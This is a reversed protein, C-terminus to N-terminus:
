KSKEHIIWKKTALNFEWLKSDKKLYRRYRDDLYMNMKASSEVEANVDSAEFIEEEKVQNGFVPCKLSFSKDRSDFPFSRCVLPRKEYIQCLNSEGLYPCNKVNLQYLIIKEPNRNGVALDPSVTEPSFLNREKPTLALGKMFRDEYYYDFLNKCCTGCQMCEFFIIKM